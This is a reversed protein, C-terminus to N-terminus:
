GHGNYFSPCKRLQLALHAILEIAIFGFGGAWWPWRMPHATTLAAATFHMAYTLAIGGIFWLILRAAIQIARNCPLRARLFNLFILEIFHGGLAPWLMILAAFPWRSIGGFSLSVTLGVLVAIIVTRTLTRRLPERFSPCSM